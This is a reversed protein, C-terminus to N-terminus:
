SMILQYKKAKQYFTNRSIGLFKSAHTINGEYHKLALHMAQKEAEEFSIPKSAMPGAPSKEVPENNATSGNEVTAIDSIKGDLLVTKEIFNELERINGPWPHKEIKENLMPSIYPIRKSLEISKQKLFFRVLAKIDEQRQRLPPIRLPVVNLRYYLDLRFRGKKVEESLNKNTAAIIRVDTKIEKSGGIRTVCGEQITRLLKVQMEIHMEGIEDLFLTGKDALEFKGARGGKRAGTFAGDEYGFLESEILTPSIAGCNIAVFAADRRNSANHIAQAFVEKGTGSEGTILISSPSQAIKRAYQVLESIATSSGIIDDFTFRAHSGSYKNVLNLMRRLERFTLMYGLIEGEPTNIPYINLMFKENGNNTKLQGEEDVYSEGLLVRRRISDWPKFLESIPRGILQMRRINLHRCATDNVWHIEDNLDIAFVGFVLNNMLTFAYQNSELLQKHISINKLNNEIAKVAAIVLALTHPHVKEQSGTMNLSGILAGDPNHIPAASCTWQRYVEVFHENASIQIAQDLFLATGMANTGISQESMCAGEIMKLNACAEAVSSDGMVHLIYGKSDTLIILFGSDAIADLLQQAIPLTTELLAQNKKLLAGLAQNSGIESPFVQSVTIGAQRSRQHSSEIIHRHDM